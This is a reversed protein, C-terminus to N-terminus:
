KHKLFCCEDLQMLWADPDSMPYMRPAIGWSLSTFGGFTRGHDSKIIALTPGKGDCKSHFGTSSFGDQSGRYLLDLKAFRGSFGFEEITKIQENQLLKSDVISHSNIIESM